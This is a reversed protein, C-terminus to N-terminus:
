EVGARLGVFRYEYKWGVVSGQSLGPVPIMKTASADPGVEIVFEVDSSARL